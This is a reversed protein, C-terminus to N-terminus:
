TEDDDDDIGVDPTYQDQFDLDVTCDGIVRAQCALRISGDTSLKLKKLLAEEDKRLPTLQSQGETVRVACTGCRCAACGFRIDVGLQRGSILLKTNSAIEGSKQSPLFRLLPM